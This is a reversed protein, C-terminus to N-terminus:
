AHSFGWVSLRGKANGSSFLFQVRDHTIVTVRAGGCYGFMVASSADMGCYTGSISSKTTGDGPSHLIVSFGLGEGAANGFSNGPPIHMIEAADNDEAMDDGGAGAPNIYVGVDGNDYDSSGSDVGSSDGLRLLASVSDTIPVLDQGQILYSDYTSDLGTVDLTATGSGGGAEETGILVLGGAAAAKVLGGARGVNDSLVGSM